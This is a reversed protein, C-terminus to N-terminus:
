FIKLSCHSHGDQFSYFKYKYKYIKDCGRHLTDHFQHYLHFSLSGESFQLPFNSFKNKRDNLYLKSYSPGLNQASLIYYRM